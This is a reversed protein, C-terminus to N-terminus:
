RDDRDNDSDDDGDNDDDDYGDNGDGDDNCDDSIHGHLGDEGTRVCGDVLM